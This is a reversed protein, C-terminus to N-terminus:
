FAGGHAKEMELRLLSLVVLFYRPIRAAAVDVWQLPHHHPVAGAERHLPGLPCTAGVGYGSLECSGSRCASEGRARSPPAAPRSFVFAHHDHLLSGALSFGGGGVHLGGHALIGPGGGAADPVLPAWTQGRSGNESSSGGQCGCGPITFLFCARGGLAGSCRGRVELAVFVDVAEFLDGSHGGGGPSVQINKAQIVECHERVLCM